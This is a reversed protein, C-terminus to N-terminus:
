SNGRLTEALVPVALDVAYPISLPSSFGLAGALDSDWAVYTVRGEQVAALGQFLPHEAMAEESWGFVALLDQDLLNVEEPSIEGTKEPAVFGMNYFFQARLDTPPLLRYQVGPDGIGWLIALSKGAFEPHETSVAGFREEIGALIEEARAQQGLARGTILTQEQWTAGGQSATVTPAIGSLAQYAGEDLFAYVAMILDPNLGAVLEFDIEQGGIVIVETDGILDVAWPRTEEPYSGLFDRVGVPVVGFALLFDVENFGAAVIRSPAHEITTSGFEHEITVPFAAPTSPSTETAPVTPTSAEGGSASGTASAPAPDDGDGCAALFAAAAAASGLGALFQRRTLHHPLHGSVSRPSLPM